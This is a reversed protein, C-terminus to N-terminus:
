VSLFNHTITFLKIKWLITDFTSTIFSHSWKKRRTEYFTCFFMCFMSFLDCIKVYKMINTNYFTAFHCVHKFFNLFLFFFAYCILRLTDCDICAVYDDMFWSLTKKLQQNLCTLACNREYHIRYQFILTTNTHIWYLVHMELGTVNDLKFLLLM